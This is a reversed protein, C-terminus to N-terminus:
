QYEGCKDFVGNITRFHEKGYQTSWTWRGCGSCQVGEDDTEDMTDDAMIGVSILYDSV